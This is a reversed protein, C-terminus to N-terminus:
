EKKAEIMSQLYIMAGEIQLKSEQTDKLKETLQEINSTAKVYATELTNIQSEIKEKLVNEKNDTNNLEM